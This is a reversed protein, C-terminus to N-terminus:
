LKSIESIMTEADKKLNENQVKSAFDKLKGSLYKASNLNVKDADVLRQYQKRLGLLYVFYRDKKMARIETPYDKVLPFGYFTKALTEMRMFAKTPESDKIKAIQDFEKKGWDNVAKVIRAAEKATEDNKKAKLEFQSLLTKVPSGYRFSTISKSLKDVKAEKSVMYAMTGFAPKLKEKKSLEVFEKYWKNGKLDNYSYHRLLKEGGMDAVYGKPITNGTASAFLEKRVENPISKFDKSQVIVVTM